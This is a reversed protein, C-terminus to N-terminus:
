RWRARLLSLICNSTKTRPMGGICSSCAVLSNTSTAIPSSQGLRWKLEVRIKVGCDASRHHVRIEAGEGQAESHQRCHEPAERLALSVESRRDGPGLLGAGAGPKCASLDLVSPEEESSLLGPVSLACHSLESPPNSIQAHMAGVAWFALVILIVLPVPLRM